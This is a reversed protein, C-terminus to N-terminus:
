SHSIQYLLQNDETASNLQPSQPLCLKSTTTSRDSIWKLKSWIQAVLSGLSDLGDVILASILTPLESCAMPSQSWRHNTCHVHSAIRQTNFAFDPLSSFSPRLYQSSTALLLSPPPTIQSAASEPPLSPWVPSQAAPDRQLELPNQQLKLSYASPIPSAYSSLPEIHGYFLCCTWCATPM